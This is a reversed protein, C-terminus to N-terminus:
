EEDRVEMVRRVRQPLLLEAGPQQVHARHEREDHHQDEQDLAHEPALLRLDHPLLVTLVPSASTIGSRKVPWTTTTAPAPLPMPAAEAARSAPSPARTTTPSMSALAARVTASRM